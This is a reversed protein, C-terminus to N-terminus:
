AFPFRVRFEPLGLENAKLAVLPPSRRNFPFRSIGFPFAANVLLPLAINRVPVAFWVTLLVGIIVM